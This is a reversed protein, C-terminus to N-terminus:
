IYLIMYRNQSDSFLKHNSIYFNLQFFILNPVLNYKSCFINVEFIWNLNKKKKQTHTYIDHKLGRPILWLIRTYILCSIAMFLM